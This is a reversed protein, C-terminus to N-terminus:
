AAVDENRRKKGGKLRKISDRIDEGKTSPCELGVCTWGKRDRRAFMELKKIRPFMKELMIQLNDPKASHKLTPHFHVSRMSKNKMYKYPSGRTGILCIEHCGRFLRGMGFALIDTLTEEPYNDKNTMVKISSFANKIMDMPTDAVAKLLDNFKAVLVKLPVKKTKVWIHTQKLTFGWAEMVEIGEKLLASPVWLALVADQEYTISDIDLGKIDDITMVDYNSESGRKVDSMTLKDDFPWPPDAVIVRYKM